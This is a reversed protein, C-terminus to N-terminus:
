TPQGPPKTQPRPIRFAQMSGAIAATSSDKDAAIADNAIKPDIGPGKLVYYFGLHGDPYQAGQLEVRNPTGAKEAEQNMKAAFDQLGKIVARPDPNQKALDIYLAQFSQATDGSWKGDKIEAGAKKAIADQNELAAETARPVDKSQAAAKVLGKREYACDFCAANSAQVVKMAEDPQERPYVAPNVDFTRQGM